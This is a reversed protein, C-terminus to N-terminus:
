KKDSQLAVVNNDENDVAATSEVNIKQIRKQGWQRRKQREESRNAVMENDGYVLSGKEKKSLIKESFVKLDSTDRGKMQRIKNLKKGKKLNLTTNSCCEGERVHQHVGKKKRGDIVSDLVCTEALRFIKFQDVQNSDNSEATLCAQSRSISSKELKTKDVASENNSPTM